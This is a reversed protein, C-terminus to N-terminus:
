HAVPIGGLSLIMALTTAFQRGNLEAQMQQASLLPVEAELVPLYDDMGHQYRIDALHRTTALAAIVSHQAQGQVQLAQLSVAAAGVDRMATIVTQNYTEVAIDYEAYQVGLGARLRGGEFIPLNIAPGVSAIQSSSQFLNGFGVSQLGVFAALNINPYFDAKASDIRASTAEITLRQASIDPRLGIFDAPIVAPLAPLVDTQIRIADGRAAPRDLLAAISNRDLEGLETLQAIDRSLAAISSAYQDAPLDSSIGVHARLQLLHLIAQQKVLMAQALALQASDSQLKFYSQAVAVSLILRAEAAEAKAANIESVAARLIDRNKGWWDFQYNFDLTLQGINFISGGIPPPFIGQASFKERTASGNVDLTPLLDAGSLAAQKQALRIRAAAIKIDPSDALASEILSNLQPDQFIRWWRTDALVSLDTPVPVPKAQAHVGSFSACASLGSILMLMIIVRWM